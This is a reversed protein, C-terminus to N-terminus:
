VNPDLNDAMRRRLGSNISSSHKHKSRSILNFRLQLCKTNISCTSKSAMLRSSCYLSMLAVM